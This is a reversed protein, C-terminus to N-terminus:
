VTSINSYNIVSDASQKPAYQQEYEADNQKWLGDWLADHPQGYEERDRKKGREMAVDLPCDIWITYGFYQLLEPRFLGVGEIILMEPTTLRKKGGIANAEWDFEGYEIETAGQSCPLLVEARLRDYDVIDWLTYDYDDTNKWFADVGIVQANLKKALLGALTSKGSGGFGSIGIILPKQLDKITAALKQINM